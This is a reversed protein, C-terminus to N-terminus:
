CTKTSKPKVHTTKHPKGGDKFYTNGYNVLIEEGHRINRTAFLYYKGDYANLAANQRGKQRQKERVRLGEPANAWAGIGRKCAADQTPLVSDALAYPALGDEGYRRDLEQMTVREGIYPAIMDNPKFLPKKKERPNWAFLGGGQVYCSKGVRIKLLM